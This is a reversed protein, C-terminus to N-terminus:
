VTGAFQANWLPHGGIRSASVCLEPNNAVAKVKPGDCLTQTSNTWHVDDVKDSGVPKLKLKYGNGVKGWNSVVEFRDEVPNGTASRHSQYIIDGPELLGTPCDILRTPAASTAKPQAPADLASINIFADVAKDAEAVTGKYNTWKETINLAKFLQTDNLGKARWKNGWERINEITWANPDAPAATLKALWPAFNDENIGKPKDKLYEGVGFEVAARPLIDSAAQKYAKSVMGSLKAGDFVVGNSNARIVIGTGVAYRKIDGIQLGGRMIVVSEDHAILEPPLLLWGPTIRNLRARIASKLIYPSKQYFGHEALTFPKQLETIQKETLM